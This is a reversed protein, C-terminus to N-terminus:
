KKGFVTKLIETARAAPDRRIRREEDAVMLYLGDLAKQTVYMDIDLSRADFLGSVPGAGKLLKKYHQTVGTRNTAQRVLPLFLERLRDQSHQRFFDTGASEPGKVIRTADELTMKRIVDVLIAQAEPVAAEAARNMSEIFEDVLKGQGFQRLRKEIKKMSPPMPIRVRTDGLFGNQKGLTAVASRAGQELAQRIGEAATGSDMGVRTTKGSLVNRIRSDLDAPAALPLMLLWVFGVLVPLPFNIM